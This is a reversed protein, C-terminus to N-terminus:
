LIICYLLLTDCMGYRFITNDDKTTDKPNITNVNITYSIMLCLIDHYEKDVFCNTYIEVDNNDSIDTVLHIQHYLNISPIFHEGEDLIFNNGGIKLEIPIPSKVYINKGLNYYNKSDTIWKQKSEFKPIHRSNLKIFGYNLVPNIEM